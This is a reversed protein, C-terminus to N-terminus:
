LGFAERDTITPVFNDRRWRYAYSDTKLAAEAEALTIQGHWYAFSIQLPRVFGPPVIYVTM